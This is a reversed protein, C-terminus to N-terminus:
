QRINVNASPNILISHRRVTIGFNDLRHIHLIHRGYSRPLVHSILTTAKHIGLPGDYYFDIRDISALNPASLTDDLCGYVGQFLITHATDLTIFFSLRKLGRSQLTSLIPLIAPHVPNFINLAQLM